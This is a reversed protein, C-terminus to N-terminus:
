GAVRFAVDLARVLSEWDPLADPDVLWQLVLGEVLALLAVALADVDGGAAPYRAGLVTRIVGAIRDRVLGYHEALVERLEGSRTEAVSEAFGYALERDATFEELLAAFVDTFRRMAPGGALEAATMVPDARRRFTEALATAMLREKSGFHYTISRPNAGSAALLDRQTTHAYGKEHICRVAADLLAGRAHGRVMAM